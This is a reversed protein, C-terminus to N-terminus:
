LSSNSHLLSTHTTETAYWQLHNGRIAEAWLGAKVEVLDTKLVDSINSSEQHEQYAQLLSFSSL